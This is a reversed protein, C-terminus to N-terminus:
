QTDNWMSESHLVDQLNLVHKSTQEQIARAATQEHQTDESDLAVAREYVRTHKPPREEDSAHIMGGDTYSEIATVDGPMASTTVASSFPGICEEEKIDNSSDHSADGCEAENGSHSPLDGAQGARRLRVQVRARYGRWASQLKVVAIDRTKARDLASKTAMAAVATRNAAEVYLQFELNVADLVSAREEDTRLQKTAEHELAERELSIQWDDDFEDGTDVSQVAQSLETSTIHNRQEAFTITDEELSSSFGVTQEMLSDELLSPLTTSVGGPLTSVEEDEADDEAKRIIQAEGETTEEQGVVAEVVEQELARLRAAKKGHRAKKLKEPSQVTSSIYEDGPKMRRSNKKVELPRPELGGVM